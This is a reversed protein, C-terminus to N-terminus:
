RFYHFQWCKRKRSAKSYEGFQIFNTFSFKLRWFLFEINYKAFSLLHICSLSHSNTSVKKWYCFTASGVGLLGRLLFSFDMMYLNVAYVSHWVFQFYIDSEAYRYMEWFPSGFVGSNLFPQWYVSNEVSNGEKVIYTCLVFDACLAWHLASVLILLWIYVPNLHPANRLNESWFRCPLSNM